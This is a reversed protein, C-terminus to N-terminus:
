KKKETSLLEEAKESRERDEEEVIKIEEVPM